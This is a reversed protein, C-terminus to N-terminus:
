RAVADRGSVPKLAAAVQGGGDTWAMVDRSLLAGLAEVDGQHAALVFRELLRRQAAPEYEFPPRQADVRERARDVIQRYEDLPKDLVAAIGEDPFAYIDHLLHAVREEPTLTNLLNLFPLSTSERQAPTEQPPLVDRKDDPATLVPEPLWLGEYYERQVRESALYDLCLRALIAGLADGAAGEDPADGALEDARETLFLVYTEQVLDESEGASGTMRYALAFLFLRHQDLEDM